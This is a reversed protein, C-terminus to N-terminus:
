NYTKIYGAVRNVYNSYEVYSLEYTYTYGKRVTIKHGSATNTKSFTKSGGDVANYVKLKIKVGSEIQTVYCYTYDRNSYVALSTQTVWEASPSSPNYFLSWNKKQVAAYGTISCFQFCLICAMVLSMVKLCLKNTRKM